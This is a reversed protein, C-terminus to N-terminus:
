INFLESTKFRYFTEATLEDVLITSNLSLPKTSSRFSRKVITFQKKPLNGGLNKITFSTPKMLKGLDDYRTKNIKGNCSKSM